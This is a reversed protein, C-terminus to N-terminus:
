TPKDAFSFRRNINKEDIKSQQKQTKTPNQKPHENQLSTNAQKQDTKTKSIPIKTIENKHETQKTTNPIGSNGNNQINVNYQLNELGHGISLRGNKSNTDDTVSKDLADISRKYFNDNQESLLRSRSKRKSFFGSLPNENTKQRIVEAGERDLDDETNKKDFDGDRIMNATTHEETSHGKKHCIRCVLSSRERYTPCDAKVYGFQNCCKCLIPDGVKFVFAEEGDIIKIGIIKQKTENSIATEKVIVHDIGSDIHSMEPESKLFHSEICKDEVNPPLHFVKFLCTDTLVNPDLIRVSVSKIDIEQNFLKKADFEGSFTVLWTSNSHYPSISSISDLDSANLPKKLGNFIDLRTPVLNKTVRIKITNTFECKKKSRLGQPFGSLSQTFYHVHGPGNSHNIM